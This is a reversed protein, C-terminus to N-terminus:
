GGDPPRYVTIGWGGLDGGAAMWAREVQAELIRRSDDSLRRALHEPAKAGTLAFPALFGDAVARYHRVARGARAEERVVEILGLRLRRRVPHQIRHPSVELERAVAAM